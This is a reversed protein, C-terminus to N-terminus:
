PQDLVIRLDTPPFERRAAIRGQDYQALDVTWDTTDSPKGRLWDFLATVPLPAGNAQTVLEQLSAYQASHGPAKLSASEPAWRLEAVVSGLPSLLKLSGTEPTGMLDFNASFSQSPQDDVRYVLRGSWQPVDITSNVGHNQANGSTLQACGAILFLAIVFVLCVLSQKLGASPYPALKM